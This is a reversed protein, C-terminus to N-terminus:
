AWNIDCISRFKDYVSQGIHLAKDLVVDFESCLESYGSITM